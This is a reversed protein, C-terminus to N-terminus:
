FSERSVDQGLNIRIDELNPFDEQWAGALTHVLDPWNQPPNSPSSQHEDLRKERIFEVFTLVEIAQHEPLSKVLEYIQEAIAM